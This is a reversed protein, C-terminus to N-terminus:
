KDNKSMSLLKKAVINPSDVGVLTVKEVSAGSAFELKVAGYDQSKFGRYSQDVFANRLESLYRGSSERSRINSQIFLQGNMVYYTVGLWGQLMKYVGYVTLLSKFVFITILLAALTADLGLANRLGILLLVLFVFLADSILVVSLVEYKIPKM